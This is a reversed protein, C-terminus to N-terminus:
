RIPKLTIWLLSQEHYTESITTITTVTQTEVPSDEQEDEEEEETATTVTYVTPSTWKDWPSDTEKSKREFKVVTEQDVTHGKPEPEQSEETNTVWTHSWLRPNISPSPDTAEVFTRSVSTISTDSLPELVNSSSNASTTQIPYPDFPDTSSSQTVTRTTVYSSQPSESDETRYPPSNDTIIVSKTTITTVTETTSNRQTEMVTEGTQKEEERVGGLSRAVTNIVINDPLLHPPSSTRAPHPESDLGNLLDQSWRGPSQPVPETPEEPGDSLSLLDHTVAERNSPVPESEVSDEIHGGASGVEEEPMVPKKVEVSTSNTDFSILTDSLAALTGVSPSPNASDELELNTKLADDDTITSMLVSSVVTSVGPTRSALTSSVAAPLELPSTAAPKAATPSTAAPIDSVPAFAILSSDAGESIVSDMLLEPMPTDVKVCRPKLGDEIISVSSTGETLVEPPVPEDSTVTTKVTTTVSTKVSSDAVDQATSQPAITSSTNSITAPSSPLTTAPATTAASGDDEDDTVEVRKAVFSLTNNVVSTDPNQEKSEYMKAASLVYSRQRGASSKLVSSAAETRKEQEESSLGDELNDSSRVTHPALKKYNESPKKIFQKSGSIMFGSSPVKDDEAKTPAPTPKPPSSTAPSSETGALRSARVEAVWPKEETSMDESQSHRQMWSTDDKLKNKVKTTSFVAERGGDSVKSTTTKSM